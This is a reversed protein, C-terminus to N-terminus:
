ETLKNQASELLKISNKKDNITFENNNEKELDTIQFALKDKQNWIATSVEILEKETLNKM